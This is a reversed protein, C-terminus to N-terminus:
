NQMSSEGLLTLLVNVTLAFTKLRNFFYQVFKNLKQSGILIKLKSVKHFPDCAYREVNSIFEGYDM